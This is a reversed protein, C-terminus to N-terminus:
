ILFLSLLLLYLYNYLLYENNNKNNSEIVYIKPEGELNFKIAKNTVIVCDNEILKNCLKEGDNFQELTISKEMVNNYNTVVILVKGRSFAYINDDVYVQVMEENYIKQSKRVDNAIKIMQYADSSTDHLGFMVERNEENTGGDFYQEDGYYFIPVGEYFLTFIIANRILKKEKNGNLFRPNDHNGIWIGNYIPNLYETHINNHYEELKKMSTSFSERIIYYLPYDGVGDMYNQYDSIYTANDSSVIGLTYTNAEETFKKWFWKPVNAVDAYRIGDFDYENIMDKIWKLLTKEVYENEQNLDPMGWIRCDEKEKQTSDDNVDCEEHYHESENFPIFTYINLDGAMHNPVADLIVWIDKNHCEKILEKLEDKTGFNENISFLDINHYGHYSGDKNKLPPSIWIAGFGMGAIYDLNMQIGKFTGGCYDKLNQCKERKDEGDKAFRDTLLQYISRSKWEEKTHKECFTFDLIILLFYLLSFILNKFVM